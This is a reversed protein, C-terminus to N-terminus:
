QGLAKKTQYQRLAAAVLADYGVKFPASEYDSVAKVSTGGAMLQSYNRDTGKAGEITTFSKKAELTQSDTFLEQTTTDFIAYHINLKESLTVTNKFYSYPAIVSEELMPPTNALKERAATLSSEASSVAFKGVGASLVSLLSTSGANSIQSTADQQQASSLQREATSVAQSATRYDPNPVQRTGSVHESSVAERGALDRSKLPPAIRLFVLLERGEAAGSKLLDAPTSGAPLPLMTVNQPEVLTLGSAPPPLVALTVRNRLSPAAFGDAVMRDVLKQRQLFTTANETALLAKYYRESLKAKHAASITKLYLRGYSSLQPLTASDLATDLVPNGDTLAKMDLKLPYVEALSPETFYGYTQFANRADAAFSTNLRLLEADLQTLAEALRPPKHAFANCSTSLQQGAALSKKLASWRQLVATEAEATKLAALAEDLAKRQRTDVLTLSDKYQQAKELQLSNLAALNEAAFALAAADDSATVHSQFRVVLRKQRFAEVFAKKSGELESFYKTEQELLVAAAEDKGADVLEKFDGYHSSFLGAQVQLSAVALMAAACLKWIKM